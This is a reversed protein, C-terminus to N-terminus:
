FNVAVQQIADHEELAQKANQASKQDTSGLNLKQTPQYHLVPANPQYGKTTLKKRVANLTTPTTLIRLLGDQGSQVDEAGAEIADLQAQDVASAAVSVEFMGVRKFQWIQSGAQALRVGYQGLLQRLDSLIRSKKDTVGEIVFASGGPGVAEYTFEELTVEGLEGSGRKIAREINERPMNAQRARDIAFRLTINSTPDSGGRRAALVVANALKTFIRGRKADSVEKQRKTTAWKSHGSM